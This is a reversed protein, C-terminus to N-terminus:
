SEATSAAGGWAWELEWRPRVQCRSFVGERVELGSLTLSFPQWPIPLLILLSLFLMHRTAVARGPGEGREPTKWDFALWTLMLVTVPWYPTFVVLYLNVAIVTIM